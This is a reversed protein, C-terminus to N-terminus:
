SRGQIEYLAALQGSYVVKLNVVSYTTGNFIIRDGASPEKAFSVAALLFQKDGSRILGAAFAAGSKDANYDAVLAKVPMQSSVVIASSSTEPDYDSGEVFIYGVDAGFEEILELALEPLEEDLETM